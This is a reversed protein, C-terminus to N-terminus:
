KPTWGYDIYEWSFNNNEDVDVILFGEETGHFAGSWWGASVAGGTLFQVDQLKIEEHIHQHGQLVIQLNHTEFTELLEKYNSIVDVFVYKDEVLPYYLSYFPVHTSVVIPTETPIDKLKSQIWKVQEEGVEYGTEGGIQVSNLIFFRIGNKEFTYYSEEFYKKFLEDGNVFGNAADWYRDHNGITPYYTLGSSDFTKKLVTYLSDANKRSLANSSMGSIDVHDGGTVIFDVKLEKTKDLAQKLGNLGDGSNNINLHIDTLFAFRLKKESSQAILSFTFISLLLFLYIRKM